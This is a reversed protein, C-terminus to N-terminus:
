NRNPINQVPNGVNLKRKLRELEREQEEKSPELGVLGKLRSWWSM